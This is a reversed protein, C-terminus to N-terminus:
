KTLGRLGLRILTAIDAGEGASRAAATIAAAAQLKRFGLNELASIADAIKPSEIRQPEDATYPALMRKSGNSTPNQRQTERQRAALWAKWCESVIACM